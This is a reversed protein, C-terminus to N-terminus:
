SQGHGNSGFPVVVAEDESTQGRAAQWTKRAGKARVENLRNRMEAQQIKREMGVADDALDAQSTRAKRQQSFGYTLSTFPLVVSVVILTPTIAADPAFGLATLVARDAPSPVLHFSREAFSSWMEAVSLGLVTLLNLLAFGRQKRQWFAAFAVSARLGLGATAAGATYFVVVGIGHYTGWQNPAEINDVWGRSFLAGMLYGEAILLLPLLLTDILWNIFPPLAHGAEEYVANANAVTTSKEAM